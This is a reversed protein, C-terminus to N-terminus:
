KFLHDTRPAYFCDEHLNSPCTKDWLLMETNQGKEPEARDRQGDVSM